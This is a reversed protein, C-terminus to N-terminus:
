CLSSSTIVGEAEKVTGSKKGLRPLEGPQTQVSKIGM